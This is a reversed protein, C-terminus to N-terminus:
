LTRVGLLLGSQVAATLWTNFNFPATEHVTAAELAALLSHGSLLQSIFVAEAVTCPAVMPRLGHRWVLAIEPVNQRLKQGIDEFSPSAYLHATLISAIPYNSRLLVTGPALQLTLADPDHETLLAFTAFDAAQDATTAATHMAWEARAVDSLYPETKLAPISAIFGALAGGWQALDGRTPIHQTWFDRALHEFAQDGILQAIVPYTAQLSRQASAAANTQYTQLGRRSHRNLISNIAMAPTNTAQAAINNTTFIASLLDRQQQVLARTNRMTSM